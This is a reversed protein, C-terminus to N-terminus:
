FTSLCPTYANHPTSSVQVLQGHSKVMCCWLPKTDSEIYSVCKITYLVVAKQILQQQAATVFLIQKAVM